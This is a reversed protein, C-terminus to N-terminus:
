EQGIHTIPRCLHMQRRSFKSNRPSLGAHEVAIIAPPRLNQTAAPDPLRYHAPPLCPCPNRSLAETDKKYGPERPNASKPGASM